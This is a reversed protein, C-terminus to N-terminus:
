KDQALLSITKVTLAQNTGDSHSFAVADRVYKEMPLDKTAGYGGHIELAQVTVKKAVESSLVKAMTHLKPDYFEDAANQLLSGTKFINNFQCTSKM